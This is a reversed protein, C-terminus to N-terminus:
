FTFGPKRPGGGGFLDAFTSPNQWDPTAGNGAMDTNVPKRKFGSLTDLFGPVAGLLRAGGSVM